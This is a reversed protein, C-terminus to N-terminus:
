AEDQLGLMKLLQAHSITKKETRAKRIAATEEPNSLIDLTEQWSELEAKSIVVVPESGRLSVEYARTGKAASKILTYLNERAESASYTKMNSLISM